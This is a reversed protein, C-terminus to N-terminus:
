RSAAIRLAHAAPRTGPATVAAKTQARDLRVIVLSLNDGSGNARLRAGHVLEEAALRPARGAVAEGIAADDFYGWLGDSCLVFHDGAAITEASGSDITPEREDGLCSLLLNRQPHSGAQEPTIRGQRLLQGVLSHDESRAMLRSGRFHYIRSDGCHAWHARGAQLLLVAATSHPDQVSTFRALKIVLHAERLIAQLLEAPSESEPCFAEFSQRAKHLVQEAAIAGGSHGGMGDAVVAMMVDRRRPHVFVAARDQQESRDGIHQAVCADVRIPM